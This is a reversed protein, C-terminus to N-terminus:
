ELIDVELDLYMTGGEPDPGEAVRLRKGERLTVRLVQQFTGILPAKGGAAEGLAGRAASVEVQGDILVRADPLVQTMLDASVGVNQYVFSTSSPERGEEVAYRTPIPARWGVLMRSKSGDQGLLRYTKESPGGPGGARGVTLAVAINRGPAGSLEGKAPPEAAALVLPVLLAVAVNM